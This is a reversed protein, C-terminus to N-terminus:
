FTVNSNRINVNEQKKLFSKKELITQIKDNKLEIELIIM